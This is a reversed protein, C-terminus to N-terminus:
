AVANRLKNTPKSITSDVFALVFSVRCYSSASSRLLNASSARVASSPTCTVNLPSVTASSPSTSQECRRSMSATTARSYAGPICIRFMTRTESM